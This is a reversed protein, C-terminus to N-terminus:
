SSDPRRHFSLKMLEESRSPDQEPRQTIATSRFGCKEYLRKAPENDDLVWLWITTFGLNLLRLLVGKVLTTAVGRRRFRPSVWVYELYCQDPPTEQERVAGVLAITAGNRVETIWEGRIFETRWERERFTLQESYTSLFAGPSERLAALRVKRLRRWEGENLIYLAMGSTHWLIGVDSLHMKGSKYRSIRLKEAM